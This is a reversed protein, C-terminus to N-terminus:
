VLAAVIRRLQDPDCWQILDLNFMRKAMANAYTWPRDSRALLSEIKYLLRAKEPPPPDPQVFARKM